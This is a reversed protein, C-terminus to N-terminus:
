KELKFVFLQGDEPITVDAVSFGAIGQYNGSGIVV